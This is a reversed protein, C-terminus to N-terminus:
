VIVRDPDIFLPLNVRTCAQTIGKDGGRRGGSCASLSGFLSIDVRVLCIDRSQDRRGSVALAISACFGGDVHKRRM